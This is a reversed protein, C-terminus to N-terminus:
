FTWIKNPTVCHDLKIDFENADTIEDVPEFFSLGIKLCDPKCKSLFRDYYGGGYGVRHGRKDFALLPVFVLDFTTEAFFGTTNEPEPVGWKNTILETEPKFLHHTLIGKKHSKPVYIDPAFDKRLTNIILNTNVENQKTIPLFTHIYSYRHMMIRSFLLDHIRQNLLKCDEQLLQQRKLRFEERAASKILM